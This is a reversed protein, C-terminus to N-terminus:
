GQRDGTKPEIHADSAPFYLAEHGDTWGVFYPPQGDRGHVELIVGRRPSDDVHQGHVVIRDGIQARM